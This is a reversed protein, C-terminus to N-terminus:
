SVPLFNNWMLELYTQISALSANATLTINGLPNGSSRHKLMEGRALLFRIFCFVMKGSVLSVEENM